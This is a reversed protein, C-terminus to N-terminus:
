YGYHFNNRFHTQNVLIDLTTRLLMESHLYMYVAWILILCQNRCDMGKNGTISIGHSCWFLSTLVPPKWFLTVTCKQTIGLWPAQSVLYLACWLTSRCKVILSSSAQWLVHKIRTYFVTSFIPFKLHAIVRWFTM